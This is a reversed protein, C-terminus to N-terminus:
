IGLNLRDFASREEETLSVETGKALEEIQETSGSAAVPFVPFPQSVLYSVAIHSVSVGKQAALKQAYQLIAENQPNDYFRRLTDSVPLGMAKKTLYGKAMSSYPVLGMGTEKHYAYQSKDFEVLTDDGLAGSNYKALSWWNSSICFGARGCSFAYDNAQKIRELTWNSCAIHRVIGRDTLAFLADMIEEVARAPNDRHLYYLDIADVGLNQLSNEADLTINKPDVRNEKTLLDYHAGKTAIVVKGSLGREKLWKGITKESVSPELGDGKGGYVRATDLLNGGCAVYADLLSFSTEADYTSGIGGAGFCYPSVFLDTKPIQKKVM